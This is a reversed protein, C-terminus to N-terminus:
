LLHRVSRGDSSWPREYKHDFDRALEYSENGGNTRLNLEFLADRNCILVGAEVDLRAVQISSRRSWYSQENPRDLAGHQDFHTFSTKKKITINKSLNKIPITKEM